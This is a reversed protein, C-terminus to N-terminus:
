LVPNKKGVIGLYNFSLGKSKAANFKAVNLEFNGMQVFDPIPLVKQLLVEVIWHTRNKIASEDWRTCNTIM